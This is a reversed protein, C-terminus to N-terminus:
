LQVASGTYTLHWSVGQCAPGTSRALGTDLSATATGHTGVTVPALHGFSLLSGPCAANADAVSIALQTVRIPSANPNTFTLVLPQHGGPYLGNVTGSIGFSERSTGGGSGSGGSGSGGDGSGGGGGTAGGGGGGTGTGGSTSGGGPAIVENSHASGTGAGAALDSGPRTLAEYALASALLVVLLVLALLAWRRRRRDQEDTMPDM